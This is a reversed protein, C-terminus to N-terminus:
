SMDGMHNLWTVCTFSDRSVNSPTMDCMDDLRIVRTFSDRWALWTVCIFSDHRVFEVRPGCIHRSGNNVETVRIHTHARFNRLKPICICTHTVYIFLPDRRVHHTIYCMHILWTVCNGGEPRLWWFTHCTEKMGTVQCMINGHSTVCNGYYAVDCMKLFSAHWVNEMMNWIVYIYIYTYIYIYIYTYIYIYIYINIYRWM